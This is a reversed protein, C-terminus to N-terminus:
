WKKYDEIFLSDINKSKQGILNMRLQGTIMDGEYQSLVGGELSTYSIEDSNGSIIMMQGVKELTHIDYAHLYTIAYGSIFGKKEKEVIPPILLVDDEFVVYKLNKLVQIDNAYKLEITKKEEEIISDRYTYKDKSIYNNSAARWINSADSFKYNTLNRRFGGYYGKNEFISDKTRFDVNGINDRSALFFTNESTMGLSDINIEGDISVNIVASLIEMEDSIRLIKLPNNNESIAEFNEVRKVLSDVEGNSAISLQKYVNLKTDVNPPYERGCSVLLIALCGFFISDYLKNIFRHNSNM